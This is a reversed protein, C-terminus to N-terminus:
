ALVMRLVPKRQEDLQEIGLLFEGHLDMRVVFLGGPEIRGIKALGFGPDNQGGFRVASNVGAQLTTEVTRRYRACISGRCKRAKNADIRAACNPSQM